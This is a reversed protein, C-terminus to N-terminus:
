VLGKGSKLGTKYGIQDALSYRLGDIADDCVKAIEEISDGNKDKLWQAMTLENILNHCGPDVVIRHRRLYRYGHMRSGGKKPVGRANIGAERLESISKPEASDCYVMNDGVHPRILEALEQNSKRKEYVEAFVFITDETKYAKIFGAPHIFGFDLGLSYDGEPILSRLGSLDRIEWNDFVVDGTSGWDGITNMRRM